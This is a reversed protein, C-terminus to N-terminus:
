RCMPIVATGVICTSYRFLLIADREIRWSMKDIERM